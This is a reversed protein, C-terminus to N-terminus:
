DDRGDAFPRAVDKVSLDLNCVIASRRRSCGCINRDLDIWRGAVNVVPIQQGRGPIGPRELKQSSQVIHDINIHGWLGRHQDVIEIAASQGILDSVNLSRWAMWVTTERGFLGRDSGGFLGSESGSASRVVKGDIVLNVCAREPLYGGFALFNIWPKQILFSSSTLKGMPVDGEGIGGTFQDGVAGRLITENSPRNGFALGEVKWDGFSDGEFDQVVIM